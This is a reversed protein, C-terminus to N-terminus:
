GPRIGVIIHDYYRFNESGGPNFNGPAFWGNYAGSWGWNMHLYTYGGGCTSTSSNYGDSVWAHGDGSAWCWFLFCSRGTYGDHIVPRGASHEAMTTSTNYDRFSLGANFGFTGVLASATNETKAGSGGCSYSMGVARGIDRLLGSTEGVGYDDPM